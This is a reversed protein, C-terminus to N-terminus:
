NSTLSPGTDKEGQSREDQLISSWAEEIVAFKWYPWGWNVIDWWAEAQMASAWIVNSVALWMVFGYDIHSPSYLSTHVPLQSENFTKIYIIWWLFLVPLKLFLFKKLFLFVWLQFSLLFILNWYVQSLCFSLSLCLFSALSVSQRRLRSEEPEEPGEEQGPRSRPRGKALIRGLWNVLIGGDKIALWIGWKGGKVDM